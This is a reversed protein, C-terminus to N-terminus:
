ARICRPLAGAVKRQSTELSVVHHYRWQLAPARCRTERRASNDRGSRSLDTSPTPSRAPIAESTPPRDLVGPAAQTRELERLQGALREFRSRRRPHTVFRTEPGPVTSGGRRKSWWDRKIPPAPLPPAPSPSERMGHRIADAAPRLPRGKPYTQGPHDRRGCNPSAEPAPGLASATQHAVRLTPQPPHSRGAWLPTTPGNRPSETATPPWASRRQPRSPSVQRRLHGHLPMVTGRPRCM